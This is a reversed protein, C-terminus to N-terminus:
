EHRVNQASIGGGGLPPSVSSFPADAAWTWVIRRILYANEAGQKIEM